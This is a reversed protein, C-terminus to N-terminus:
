RPQDPTTYPVFDSLSCSGVTIGNTLDTMRVIEGRCLEGSGFTRTVMAVGPRGLGICGGAPDNRWVRRSGDRFLITKEDIVVMDDRRFTPLCTQPSGAVKGTLYRDLEQQAKASRPQDNASAACAAVSALLPLLLLSRM